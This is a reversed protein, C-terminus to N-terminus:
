CVDGHRLPRTLTFDFLITGLTPSPAEDASLSDGQFEAHTRLAATYWAPYTGTAFPPKWSYEVGRTGWKAGYQLRRRSFTVGLQAIAGRGALQRTELM